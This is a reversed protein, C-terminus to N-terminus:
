PLTLDVDRPIQCEIPISSRDRLVKKVDLVM